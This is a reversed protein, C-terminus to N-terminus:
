VCIKDPWPCEHKVWIAWVMGMNDPGHIGLFIKRCAAGAYAGIPLLTWVIFPLGFMRLTLPNIKQPLTVTSIQFEVYSIRKKLRWAHDSMPSIWYLKYIDLEPIALESTVSTQMVDTVGKAFAAGLPGMRLMAHQYKVQVLHPAVVRRCVACFEADFGGFGRSAWGAFAWHFLWPQHECTHRGACHEPTHIPIWFSSPQKCCWQRHFGSHFSPIRHCGASIEEHFLGMAGPEASAARSADLGGGQLWLAKHSRSAVLSQRPVSSSLPVVLPGTSKPGSTVINPHQVFQEFLACWLYGLDKIQM